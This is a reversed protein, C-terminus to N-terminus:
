PQEIWQNAYTDSTSLTLNNGQLFNLELRIFM